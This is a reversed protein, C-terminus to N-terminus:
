FKWKKKKKVDERDRGLSDIERSLSKINKENKELVSKIAKPFM